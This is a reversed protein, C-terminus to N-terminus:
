GDGDDTLDAAVRAVIADIEEDAAIRPKAAQTCAAARAAATTETRAHIAQAVGEAHERIRRAELRADAVREACRARVRELDAAAEREAALVREITAAVGTSTGPAGTEDHLRAM